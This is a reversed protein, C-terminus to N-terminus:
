FGPKKARRSNTNMERKRDPRGPPVIGKEHRFRAKNVEDFQEAAHRQIEPNRLSKRQM